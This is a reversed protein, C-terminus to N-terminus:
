QHEERRFFIIPYRHILRIKKNYNYYAFFIHFLPLFCAATQTKPTSLFTPFKSFKLLFFPFFLM